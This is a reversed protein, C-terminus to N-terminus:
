DIIAIQLSIVRLDKLPSSTKKGNSHLRTKSRRSKQAIITQGCSLLHRGVWETSYSALDYIQALDMHLLYFVQFM